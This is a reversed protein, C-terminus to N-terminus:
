TNVGRYSVTADQSLLQVVIPSQIMLEEWPVGTLENVKVEDFEKQMTKNAQRVKFLALEIAKWQNLIVFALMEQHFTPNDPDYSFTAPIAAGFTSYPVEIDNVMNM